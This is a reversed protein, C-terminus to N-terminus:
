GSRELPLGAATWAALGGAFWTGEVDLHNLEAALEPATGSHEDEGYVVIPVDDALRRLLGIDPRALAGLSIGQPSPIRTPPM